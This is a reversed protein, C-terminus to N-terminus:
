RSSRPICSVAWPSRAALRQIRTARRSTWPGPSSADRTIPNPLAVALLAAQRSTLRKASRKFHTRAAAEAGFVGQDWEAINLYVELIRRKPWFLEIAFTVPVEIAKRVYSKSPWLFLNKSVQMSITSAGRPTRGSARRIASLVEAFDIGWHRCFRGDESMIVARHLNPSIAELPVWKQTIRTGGLRELLMLNSFPPNVFRYVVIMLLVVSFWAASVILIVKAARIGINTIRHADWHALLRHAWGQLYTKLRPPADIAPAASSALATGLDGAEHHEGRRPARAPHFPESSLSSPAPKGTTSNITKEAPPDSKEM